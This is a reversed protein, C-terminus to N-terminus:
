AARVPLRAMGTMGFKNRGDPKSGGRPHVVSGSVCRRRDEDFSYVAQGGDNERFGPDPELAPHRAKADTGQPLPILEL